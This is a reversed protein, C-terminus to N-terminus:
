SRQVFGTRILCTLWTTGPSYGPVPFEIYNSSSFSIYVVILGSAPAVSRPHVGLCACAMWPFAGMQRDQECDRGPEYAPSRGPKAAGEGPERYRQRFWFSISRSYVRVMWLVLLVVALLVMSLASGFSWNLQDVVQSSIEMTIMLDSIGGLLAPTVYFGLCYIFVLLFGAIM